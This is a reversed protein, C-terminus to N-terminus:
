KTASLLVVDARAYLYKSIVATWRGDPSSVGPEQVYLGRLDTDPPDAAVAYVMEHTEALTLLHNDLPPLPDHYRQPTTMQEPAFVWLDNGWLGCASQYYLTSKQWGLLMYQCPEHEGIAQARALGNAFLSPQTVLTLTM